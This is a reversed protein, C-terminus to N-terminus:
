ATRGLLDRRAAVAFWSGAALGIAGGALRIAHLPAPIAILMSSLALAGIATRALQVMAAANGGRYSHALAPFAYNIVGLVVLVLGSGLVCWVLAAMLLRRGARGALYGFLAFAGFLGLLVPLVSGILEGVFFRLGAAVAAETAQPVGFGVSDFSGINGLLKLASGLPLVFLGLGILGTSYWQRPTRAASLSQNM